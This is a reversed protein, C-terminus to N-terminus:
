VFIPRQGFLVTCRINNHSRHPLPDSKLFWGVHSFRFGILWLEAQVLLNNLIAGRLWYESDEFGAVVSNETDAMRHRHMGLLM